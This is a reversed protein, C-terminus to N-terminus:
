HGFWIYECKRKYHKWNGQHFTSVNSIENQTVHIILPRSIAEYHPVTIDIRPIFKCMRSFTHFKACVNM